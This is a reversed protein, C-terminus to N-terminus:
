LLCNDQVCVQREELKLPTFRHGQRFSFVVDAKVKCRRKDVEALGLEM